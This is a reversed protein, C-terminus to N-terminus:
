QLLIKELEDYIADSCDQYLEWLTTDQILTANYTNNVANLSNSDGEICQIKVVLAALTNRSFALVKWLELYTRSKYRYVQGIRLKM